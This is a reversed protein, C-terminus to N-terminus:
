DAKKAAADKAKMQCAALAKRAEDKQLKAADAAKVTVGCQDKLQVCLSFLNQLPIHIEFTCCCCAVQLLAIHIEFLLDNTHPCNARRPRIRVEEERCSGIITTRNNRRKTPKNTENFCTDFVICM